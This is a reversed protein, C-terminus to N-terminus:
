DGYESLLPKNSFFAELNGMVLDRLDLFSEPTFVAVHPSLVVNDMAFLEVPVDPENEFVDLGAGAIEGQVLCQVMEKENIIAGRGINVIVGEKGLASLVEKNIMHRTQDTLECCIVLVDCNAALECVSEYFPYSVHPKRKRSNYSIGCGFAELRKAVAFGINGLGVIGIRKGGLKSGLPYDGKTAWLGKRVYGDSASVKRLVDILLGVAFDAVDDSFVSGANAVKIGRRRCEPLDVQNLGVSTTVVVGVEPLLQLIDATIPTGVSALIAKISPSHTSLFQHLPLSSDYAKLFTFKNSAYHQEGVHAIFSIPKLILVKPFDQQAKHCDTSVAMKLVSARSLLPNKKGKRKISVLCEEAFGHRNQWTIYKLLVCM